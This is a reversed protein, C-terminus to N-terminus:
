REEITKESFCSLRECLSITYAIAKDSSMKNLKEDFKLYDLLTSSDLMFTPVLDNM